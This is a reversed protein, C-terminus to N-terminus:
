AKSNADTCWKLVAQKERDKNLVWVLTQVSSEAGKAADVKLDYVLGTNEPRSPSKASTTSAIMTVAM